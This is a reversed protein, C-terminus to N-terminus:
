YGRDLHKWVDLSFPWAVCILLNEAAVREDEPNRSGFSSFLLTVIYVLLAVPLGLLALVLRLVPAKHWLWSTGLMFGLQPLYLVNLILLLILRLPPLLSLLGFVLGLINAAILAPIRVIAILVWFVQNTILGVADPETIAHLEQLL